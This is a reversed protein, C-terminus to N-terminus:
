KSLVIVVAILIGAGLAFLSYKRHEKEAQPLLHTAGVYVLAGASLSLMAGLSPKDIQSIFPYSVLMGLPTSLSAALLALILSKKASFGGHLLLLYTIIGEPFEHLVMGSAALVGTFASVSFTIAYIFGDIFSHFGIGLMPVLGLGYLSDPGRECVFATIFRNFIHLLVFGSLLYAPANENMEFSKPIIHLFSVSILVGAAFCVFYTSYKRGWIDFHRITYIGTATVLAALSSAALATWFTNEM